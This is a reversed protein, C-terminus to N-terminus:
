KENFEKIKSKKEFCIKKLSERYFIKAIKNYILIYGVLYRWKNWKKVPTKNPM